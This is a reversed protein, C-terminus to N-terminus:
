CFLFVLDMDNLRYLDPVYLFLYKVGIAGSIYVYSGGINVIFVDFTYM